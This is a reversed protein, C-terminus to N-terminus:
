VSAGSDKVVKGWKKAEADIFKAFGEQTDIVVEGGQDNIKKKTEPQALVKVLAANLTPSMTLGTLVVGPLLAVWGWPASAKSRM